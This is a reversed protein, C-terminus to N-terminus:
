KSNRIRNLLSAARKRLWDDRERLSIGLIVLPIGPLFPLLLGAVGAFLCAYSLIRKAMDGNRRGHLPFFTV